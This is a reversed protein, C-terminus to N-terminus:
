QKIIRKTQSSKGNSVRVLYIGNSFETVDIKSNLKSIEGSFLQKGLVDYIEVNANEVTDPLEIDFSTSVPNPSIKFERLNFDDVGLTFGSSTIGRNGGTHNSLNLTNNGRAWVLNISTDTLSFVYDNDVGTNLSRTAVLIRDGAQTTIDNTILSWNQTVPDLSPAVGIGNFTRDTLTGSTNTSSGGTYLVVDEGSTMSSVGFGIGLWRDAPGVLTLTVETATIDIQATYELGTTSSLNIVGTSNTQSSLIGIFLIFSLLTLTIKKM